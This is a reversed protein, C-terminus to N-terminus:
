KPSITSSIISIRMLKKRKRQLEPNEDGSKVYFGVIIKMGSISLNVETPFFGKIVEHSTQHFFEHREGLVYICIKPPAEITGM